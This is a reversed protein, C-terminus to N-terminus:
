LMTGGSTNMMNDICIDDTLVIFDIMKMLCNWQWLGLMM